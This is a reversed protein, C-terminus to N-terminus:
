EGKKDEASGNTLQDKSQAETFCFSKCSSNIHFLKYCERNSAKHTQSCNWRSEGCSWSYWTLALVLFAWAEACQQAHCINQAFSCKRPSGITRNPPCTITSAIEATVDGDAPTEAMSTRIVCPWFHLSCVIVNTSTLVLPVSLQPSVITETEYSRMHECSPTPPHENFLLEAASTSTSRSEELCPEAATALLASFTAPDM